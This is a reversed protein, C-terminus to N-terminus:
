DELVDVASALDAVSPHLYHQTTVISAHGLLEQVRRLDVGRSLLTTAFTHRLVHPSLGMLEPYRYSIERTYKRVAHPSIPGGRVTPFLWQSTGSYPHGHPSHRGHWRDLLYENLTDWAGGSLPVTRAKDGKGRFTLIMRSGMGKLNERRLSSIEGIRLGTKPLLLLITRAPEQDMQEVAAFYIALQHSDLAERKEPQRGKAKPLLANVEDEQYGQVSVLYHKVAARIPLVTGIPTRAHVRGRIWTLLDSTDAGGLIEGYKERTSPLLGRDRLRRDLADM